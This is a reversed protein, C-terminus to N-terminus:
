QEFLRARGELFTRNYQVAAMEGLGAPGLGSRLRDEGRREIMERAWM